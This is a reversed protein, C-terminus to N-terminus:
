ENLYVDIRSGGGDHVVRASLGLRTAAAVDAAAGNESANRADRESVFRRARSSRGIRLPEAAKDPLARMVTFRDLGAVPTLLILYTIKM